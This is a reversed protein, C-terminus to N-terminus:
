YGLIAKWQATCETNGAASYHVGDYTMTAGNDAGKLWVREDHGVNAWGARAAVVNDIWGALTDADADQDRRWPKAVYVQIAPYKAHFADLIYGVDAEWTAQAPMTGAMEAAGLNFLLANLFKETRAAVDADVRAKTSAVSAGPIGIWPVVVGSYGAAILNAQLTVPWTSGFEM